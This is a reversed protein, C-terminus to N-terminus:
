GHSQWIHKRSYRSGTPKSEQLHPYGLISPFMWKYDKTQLSHANPLYRTWYQLKRKYPNMLYGGSLKLRTAWVYLLVMILRTLACLLGLGEWWQAVPKESFFKSTKVGNSSYINELADALQKNPITYGYILESSYLCDYKNNQQYSDHKYGFDLCNFCNDRKLTWWSASSPRWDHKWSQHEFCRWNSRLALRFWIIVM